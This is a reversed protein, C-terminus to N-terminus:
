CRGRLSDRTLGPQNANDKRMIRVKPRSRSLHEVIVSAMQAGGLSDKLNQWEIEGVIVGAAGRRFLILVLLYFVLSGSCSVGYRACRERASCGVILFLPPKRRDDLVKLLGNLFSVRLSLSAGGEGPIPDM